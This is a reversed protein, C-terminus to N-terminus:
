FLKHIETENDNNFYNELLMDSVILICELISSNSSHELM